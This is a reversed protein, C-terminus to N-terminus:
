SVIHSSIREGIGAIRDLTKVTLEGVLTIGTLIQELEDLLEEVLYEISGSGNFLTRIIESHINKITTLETQFSTTGASALQAAKVIKIPLAM